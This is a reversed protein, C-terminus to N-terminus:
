RGVAIFGAWRSPHEDGGEARIAALRARSAARVAEAVGVSRSRAEYYAGMWASADADRVPWLSMVLHGAGALRFARQLGFVGEGVAVDGSGTDCASLVVEGVGALDLAAIEESTLIGDEGDPATDARRNAGALALGALRLPHERAVGIREPLYIDARIPVARRPRVAAPVLRGVGRQGPAAGCAEGLFFGHTAVHISSARPAAEKFAAETADGGTLWLPPRGRATLRRVVDEGEARAGPLPEFRLQAFSACRSRSGRFAGPATRHDGARDFDPAGVVLPPGSDAAAPAFLDRESSLRTIVQAGEVWWGGRRGPLISFDVLHLPGDSVVYVRSAGEVLGTLPDWVMRRLAEGAARAQRRTGGPAAAARWRQVVASLAAADALRVAEVDRGPRAVLAVVHEAPGSPMRSALTGHVVFSVLAEDQQLGSLLRDADVPRVLVGEGSADALEREWRAVAVRSASMASDPRILATPERVMARALEARAAQLSDLARRAAATGSRRSERTRAAITELVLGRASAVVALAERREAPSLRGAAALSLLVDWGLGDRRAVSLAERESFGAALALLDERRQAAVALAAAGARPDHAAALARAHTLRMRTVAPHASGYRASVVDIALGLEDVVETARGADVLCDALFRAAEAQYADVPEHSARGRERARRAWELAAATDGSARVAYARALVTYSTLTSDNRSSAFASDLCANAEAPAGLAAFARGAQLFPKAYMPDGFEIRGRQLRISEQSAELAGEHDGVDNRLEAIAAHNRALALSDIPSHALTLDFAEELHRRAGSYDGDNLALIGLARVFRPLDSHKEGLSRRIVAIAREGEARARAPDGNSLLQASMQYRLFATGLDNPGRKLEQIRIAREVYPLGSARGQQQRLTAIGFLVAPLDVHDPPLRREMMALTVHLVSDAERPRTRIRHWEGETYIARLLFLSDPAVSSRAIALARRMQADVVARDHPAGLALSVHDLMACALSLSDVGPRASWAEVIARASDAAAIMQRAQILTRFPERRQPPRDCSDPAWSAVAAGPCWGVLLLWALAFRRSMRLPTRRTLSPGRPPRNM